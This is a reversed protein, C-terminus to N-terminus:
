NRMLNLAETSLGYAKLKAMLLNHCVSDFAKSLDVTVIAVSKQDDLNVRWDETVKLLPTAFSHRKLFGSPNNSLQPSVVDYMKDYVVKEYVEPLTSLM